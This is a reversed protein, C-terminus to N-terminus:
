TTIDGDSRVAPCDFAITTAERSVSVAPEMKMGLKKVVACLARRYSTRAETTFGFLSFFVLAYAVYLWESRRVSFKVWFLTDEDITLMQPIESWQGHVAEWGPWFPIPGESLSVVLGLVNLPLTVLADICGLAMFRLYSARSIQSNSALMANVERSQKYFVWLIGAIM